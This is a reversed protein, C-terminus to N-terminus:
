LLIWGFCFYKQNYLTFLKSMLKYYGIEVVWSIILVSTRISKQIKCMKWFMVCVELKENYKAIKCVFLDFLCGKFQIGDDRMVDCGEGCFGLNAKFCIHKSEARCVCCQCACDFAYTIWRGELM